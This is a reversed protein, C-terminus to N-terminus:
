EPRLGTALLTSRQRSFPVFTFSPPVYLFIQLKNSLLSLSLFFEGVIVVGIFLSIIIRFM